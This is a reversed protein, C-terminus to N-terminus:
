DKQLQQLIVLKREADSALISLIGHLAPVQRAITECSTITEALKQPNRGTYDTHIILEELQNYIEVALVNPISASALNLNEDFRAEARTCKKSSVFLWINLAFIGAVLINGGINQGYGVWTLIGYIGIFIIGIIVFVIFTQNNNKIKLATEQAQMIQDANKFIKQRLKEDSNFSIKDL